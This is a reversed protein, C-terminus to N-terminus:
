SDIIVMGGTNEQLRPELELDPKHRSLGMGGGPWPTSRTM